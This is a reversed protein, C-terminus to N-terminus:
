FGAAAALEGAKAQFARAVADVRPKNKYYFLDDHTLGTIDLALDLMRPQLHRNLYMAMGAGVVTGGIGGVANGIGPVASGAVAGGMGGVTALVTTIGMRSMLTLTQVVQIKNKTTRDAAKFEKETKVWSYILRVGGVIVAAYPIIDVVGDPIDIVMNGSLTGLGDNIGEVRAYDSGIDAVIRDGTDMGSAVVKDHIETGFAFHRDLPAEEMLDQVDSVSYSTGTKVQFSVHQGDPNLANIDLGEQNPIPALRVDTYGKAELVERANFEAVKGKLGNIFGQMSEQGREMMERWHEHLSHDAALVPYQAEYATAINDDVNIGTGPVNIGLVSRDDFIYWMGLSAASAFEAAYMARDTGVLGTMMDRFSMRQRSESTPLERLAPLLDTSRMTM